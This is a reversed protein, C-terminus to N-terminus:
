QGSTLIPQMDPGIVVAIDNTTLGDAGPQVRDQPLGMLAALYRATWIKGTYVHIETNANSATPTNGVQGIEVGRGALWDRTQGALGLVDTNNFVAITAKESDARSRLESITLNEEPFLVQQVLLRIANTKLLLVQDGSTTSAFTVYLNDIQGFSLSDKPIDGMLSGLKLIEELNMNTKISTSLQQWLAPAQGIFSTIGGASLVKERLARLVEQQRGARDFDSGQTHRTRAYQLLHEADLM